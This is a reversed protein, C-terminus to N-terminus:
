LLKKLAAPRDKRDSPNDNKPMTGREAFNKHNHNTACSSCHFATTPVRSKWKTLPISKLRDELEDSKSKLCEVVQLMEVELQPNAKDYTLAVEQMKAQILEANQKESEDFEINGLDKLTSPWISTYGCSLCSYSSKDDSERLYRISGDGQCITDKTRGGCRYVTLQKTSKVTQLLRENRQVKNSADAAQKGLDHFYQHTGAEGLEAKRNAVNVDGGQKGLDQFYQHTGTEGLEAKRNAANADGSHLPLYTLYV